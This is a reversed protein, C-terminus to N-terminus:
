DLIKCESMEPHRYDAGFLQFTNLILIWECFLSLQNWMRPTQMHISSGNSKYTHWESWITTQKFFHNLTHVNRKRFPIMQKDSESSISFLSWFWVSECVTEFAAFFPLCFTISRKWLFTWFDNFYFLSEKRFCRYVNSHTFM